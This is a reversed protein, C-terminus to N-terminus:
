VPITAIPPSTPQKSGGAPEVTVAVRDARTIGDMVMEDSRKFWGQSTPGKAGVLWVQYVKGDGPDPLENAFIVAADKSPSMVMRVNGGDDFVKEVTQADASALVRQVQANHQREQSANQHEVVYGGVGAAGILFAAAMALRPLTRRLGRRQALATVVPREQPTQSIEALLRDRLAPPPTHGVADGLRAATAVFGALEDQCHTCQDLHAEFRDREERDLANLAYPALLSHLDTM